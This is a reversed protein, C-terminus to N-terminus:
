RSEKCKCARLGEIAVFLASPMCNQATASLAMDKFSGLETGYQDRRFGPRHSIRMPPTNQLSAPFGQPQSQAVPTKNRPPTRCRKKQQANTHM